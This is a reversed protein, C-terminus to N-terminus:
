PLCGKFSLAQVVCIMRRLATPLEGCLGCKNLVNGYDCTDKVIADEMYKRYEEPHRTDDEKVM